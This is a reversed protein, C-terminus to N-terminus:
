ISGEKSLIFDHTVNMIRNESYKLIHYEGTVTILEIYENIIQESPPEEYFLEWEHKFFITLQILVDEVKEHLMVNQYFVQRAEDDFVKIKFKSEYYNVYNKYNLKNNLGYFNFYKVRNIQDYFQIVFDNLFFLNPNRDNTYGVLNSTYVIDGGLTQLYTIAIPFVIVEKPELEEHRLIINRLIEATSDLLTITKDCIFTRWVQLYFFLRILKVESFELVDINTLDSDRLKPLITKVFEGEIASFRNECESCFVYDVSYPNSKAKVIEDETPERGLAKILETVSTEQQFNFELYPKGSIEFYFGKGRDQSGSKNLCSRIISDTLYHTNKKNAEREKCLPCIM